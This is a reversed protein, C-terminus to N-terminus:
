PMVKDDLEDGFQELEPLLTREEYPMLSVRDGHQKLQEDRIYYYKEATSAGADRSDQLITPRLFIMLNRKNKTTQRSKFIEGLLPIRSLLPVRQITELLQDDILGGLVIIESDEAIVNTIFSRENTTQLGVQANASAEISSIIGEIELQVSSGGQNIKPKVKLTIGVDERNLTQFPNVSGGSTGTNTFSGSLFPVKQGVKIEAEKNDLTTINPTSLINTSADGALASLVAAISNGGPKLRGFVFTGGSPIAASSITGGSLAEGIQAVGPGSAPFNTLGAGIDKATGDFAWTVGLQATKDASVEVIIAEVQVQARRIDLKDIVSRLSKINKPSASIILANNDPDPIISTLNNSPGAGAGVTGAGRIANNQENLIKAIAEADAFRLYIVQPGNDDALPSDLNAILSRIQTRKNADGSILVSNTRDDANFSVPNGLQNQGGQRGQYLSTLTQVIQSATANELRIMEPEDTTPKDVEGLIYAIRKVNASRDIVLVKSAGIPVFQGNNSVIPRIAQQLNASTIHKLDFIRTVYSDNPTKKNYTTRVPEQRMKNEQIIKIVKGSPVAVYGNTQLVALFAEYFEDISMATASTMNVKFNISQDIIFNKGTLESVTDIVKRVDTDVFNPTIMGEQARTNLGVLLTLCLVLFLKYLPNLTSYNNNYM